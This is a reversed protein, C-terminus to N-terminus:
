RCREEWRISSAKSISLGLGTGPVDSVVTNYERKFPEFVRRLFEPSMGIGDDSVRFRVTVYNRSMVDMKAVLFAIHGGDPTYKAANSLLNLLLQTMRIRDSTM